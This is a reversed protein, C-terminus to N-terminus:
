REVGTVKLNLKEGQEWREILEYDVELLGTEWAKGHGLPQDWWQIVIRKGCALMKDVNTRRPTGTYDEMQGLMKNLHSRTDGKSSVQVLVDQSGPKVMWYDFCGCLDTKVTQGKVVRFAEVKIPFYGKSAWYDCTRKSHDAPKRRKSSYDTKPNIKEHDRDRNEDLKKWGEPLVSGFLDPDESSPTTFVDSM